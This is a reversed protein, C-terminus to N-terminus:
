KARARMKRRRRTRKKRKMKRYRNNYKKRSKKNSLVKYAHRIKRTVKGKKKIKKFTKRIHKRTAYKSVHLRKYLHHGGVQVDPLFKKLTTIYNDMSHNKVSSLQFNLFSLNYTNIKKIPKLDDLLFVEGPHTTKTKFYKNNKKLKMEFYPICIKVIEQIKLLVKLTNEKSVGGRQRRPSFRQALSYMKKEKSSIQTNAKKAVRSAIMLKNINLERYMGEVVQRDIVFKPYINVENNLFILKCISTCIAILVFGDFLSLRPVVDEKYVFTNIKLNTHNSLYKELPKVNNPQAGFTTGSAYGFVDVNIRNNKAFKDYILVGAVTSVGGGLSHGTVVINYGTASILESLNPTIQKVIERGARLFGSHVLYSKGDLPVSETTALGDIVADILTSTGKIVLLISKTLNDVLLAHKPVLVRGKKQKGQYLQIDCGKTKSFQKFLPQTLYISNAFESFRIANNSRALGPLAKKMVPGVSSDKEMIRYSKNLLFAAFSLKDRNRMVNFNNFLDKPTRSNSVILDKTTSNIKSFLEFVISKLESDFPKYNRIKQLKQLKSNNLLSRSFKMGREMRAGGGLEHERGEKKYRLEKARRSARSQAEAQRRAKEYVPVGFEKKYDFVIDGLESSNSPTRLEDGFIGLFLERDEADPYESISRQRQMSVPASVTVGNLAKERLERADYERKQRLLEQLENDVNSRGEKSEGNAATAAVSSLESSYELIPADSYEKRGPNAQYESFAKKTIIDGSRGDDFLHGLRKNIIDIYELTEKGWVGDWRHVINHFFMARIEIITVTRFDGTIRVLLNAVLNGLRGDKRAERGAKRILNKDIIEDAM